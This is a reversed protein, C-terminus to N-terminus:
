QEAFEPRIGELVLQLRNNVEPDGSSKLAAEVMSRVAAGKAILGKTAAERKAYEDSGLEALLKRAAAEEEPKLKPPNAWESIKKLEDTVAGVAKEPAGDIPPVALRWGGPVAKGEEDKREVAKLFVLAKGGKALGFPPWQRGGFKQYNRAAMNYWEKVVIMDQARGMRITVVPFKVTKAEERGKLVKEVEVTVTRLKPQMGGFMQSAFTLDEPPDEEPTDKKDDKGKDKDKDKDAGKGAEKGKEKGDDADPEVVETVKAVLVLDSMSTGAAAQRLTFEDVAPEAAAAPSGLAAVALAVAITRLAGAPVVTRGHPGTM